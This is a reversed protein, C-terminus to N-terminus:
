KNTQTRYVAVSYSKLPTIKLQDRKAIVLKYEKFENKKDLFGIVCSYKEEGKRIEIKPQIGFNPVKLIDSADVEKYKIKLLFEFTKKTEFVNVSFKWNNLQDEEIPVSYTAVPNSKITTRTEAITDNTVFTKTSGNIPKNNGMENCATVFGIVVCIFILRM